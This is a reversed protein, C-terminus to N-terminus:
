RMVRWIPGVRNCFNDHFGWKLGVMAELLPTRQNEALWEVDPHRLTSGSFHFQPPCFSGTLPVEGSVGCIPFKGHADLTQHLHILRRVTGAAM